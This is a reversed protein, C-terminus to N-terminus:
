DRAVIASRSTSVSESSSIQVSNTNVRLITSALKGSVANMEQWSVDKGTPSPIDGTVKAVVIANTNGATPGNARFDFVPSLTGGSSQFYHQGSLTIGFKDQVQQTFAPDYPDRSSHNFWDNFADDQIEAFEPGPFLNSIDFM